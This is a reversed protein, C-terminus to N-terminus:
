GWKKKSRVRNQERERKRM